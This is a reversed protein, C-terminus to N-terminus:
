KMQDVRVGEEETTESLEFQRRCSEPLVSHTFAMRLCDEAFFQRLDRGTCHELFRRLPLVHSYPMDWHTLFDEVTHHLRDPRPLTEWPARAKMASKSPLQKYYYFVPHLFNSRAADAPEGTARGVRFPDAEPASFNAGYELSVVIIESVASGTYQEFAYILNSPFEEFYDFTDGRLAIVDCLRGFMQYPGSAENIRKIIFPVLDTVHGSRFPWPVNHNRKELLHHLARVTYRFGHIFGGAAKRFDLSHTVTGAYFMGPVDVSEYNYQIRPYKNKRGKSRSVQMSEGSFLTDNFRFGLCRVIRDYPERLAFNDHSKSSEYMGTGNRVSVVYRAGSRQVRLEEIPAELMGDLSKLQYTDLIANNVGRLDGVYHTAWSLRVRSRGLMHVYNTSGYIRDALEFASNGRGLILVSQGEFDEADVSVTEYGEVLEVGEFTPLNPSWMGTAIILTKCTFINGHQDQMRFRVDTIADGPDVEALKTINQIDKNHLVNIGLKTEFDNLYRVYTLSDPFLERSYHTFRLSYDDSLLSNWDHRLNFERNTKGTHRKNISILKRHRPYIAFFSGSINAREIIAYDRGAKKLFYGLQLGAPGAGVVIYDHYAGGEAGGQSAQNSATVLSFSLLFFISLSLFIILTIIKWM